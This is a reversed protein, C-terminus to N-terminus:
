EMRLRDMFYTFSAANGENFGINRLVKCIELTRIEQMSHGPSGGLTFQTGPPDLPLPPASRVITPEAVPHPDLIPPFM